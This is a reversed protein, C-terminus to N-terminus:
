RLGAVCQGLEAAAYRKYIRHAYSFQESYTDLANGFHEEYCVYEVHQASIKSLTFAYAVRVYEDLPLQEM